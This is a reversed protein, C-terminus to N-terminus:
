TAFGLWATMLLSNTINRHSSILLMNTSFLAVVTFIIDVSAEGVGCSVVAGVIASVPSSATVTKLPVAYVSSPAVQISLISPVKAASESAELTSVFVTPAYVTVYVQVSVVPFLAVALLVTVTESGGGGTEGVGSVVFGTIAIVPSLGALTFVPVVYASAPAVQVSLTSPLGVSVSSAESTSVPLTPVYVTVYVQVSEVPFSDVAVLVTM